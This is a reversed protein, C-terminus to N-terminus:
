LREQLRDHFGESPRVSDLAQKYKRFFEADEPTLDAEWSKDNEQDEEGHPEPMTEERLHNIVRSNHKAMAPTWTISKPGRGGGAHFPLYSMCSGMTVGAGMTVAWASM